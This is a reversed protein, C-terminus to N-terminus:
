DTGRGNRGIMSKALIYFMHAHLISSLVYFTKNDNNIETPTKNMFYINMPVYFFYMIYNSAIRSKCADDLGLM